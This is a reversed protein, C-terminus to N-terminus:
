EDRRGGKLVSMKWVLAPILPALPLLPLLREPLVIGPFGVRSDREKSDYELYYTVPEMKWSIPHHPGRGEDGVAGSGMDGVRLSKIWIAIKLTHGSKFTHSRLIQTVLILPRETSHGELRRVFLSFGVRESRGVEDVDYLGIALAAWCERDAHLYLRYVLRGNLTYAEELPGYLYFSWARHWRRDEVTLSDVHAAEGLDTFDPHTMYRNTMTNCVTVPTPSYELSLYTRRVPLHHLRICSPRSTSGYELFYAVGRHGKVYVEVRIRHGPSLTYERVRGGTLNLLGGPEAGIKVGRFKDEKIKHSAGDEGVDYLVFKLSVEGARSAHLYLVYDMEGTLVYDQELPVDLYFVWVRRWGENSPEWVDNHIGGGLESSPRLTLVRHTLVGSINVPVDLYELNLVEEGTPQPQTPTSLAMLSMSALAASMILLLILALTSSRGRRGERREESSRKRRPSVWGFIKRLRVRLIRDTITGTKLTRIWTGEEKELLGKLAAYAQFPTIIYSLAIFSLIGRFDQLASYELFLGTLGMLPLAFLNSLVLGWGLTATWFSPHQGLAEAVLWCLSGILFFFSQLYYPAFYLFELKERLTLMPSRLVRWFYKKVAFTHGEAWRMRQRVLRRVTKPIEAPAQILPTYVVKYGALYLRITLDWDETISTTWGLRRLVDARVMFVSGAIMKMAGFFEEATREVMYSGSYEARVGRTLWNESKNLVHLQYGQVAAVRRAEYWEEVRRELDGGGGGRNNNFHNLVRSALRHKNNGGNQGNQRNFYWLFQRLIDPPPIFDADFVVVYETRPDMHKLAESLAGGKFGRRDKRHVFKLTPGGRRRSMERLIRVTEDRSDDVVLIEYNSYDLNICAELIRRAVNRENYFPLHISIFPEEAGEYQGEPPPDENSLDSSRGGFHNLVREALRHNRNRNTRGGESNAGNGGGKGGLLALLIAVYYKCAFAFFFIGFALAVYSFALGVSPPVLAL